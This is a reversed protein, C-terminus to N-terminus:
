FITVEAYGRSLASIDRAGFSSRQYSVASLQHSKIKLGADEIAVRGQDHDVLGRAERHMGPWARRITELAVEIRQAESVPFPRTQHMAEVAVGAAAQQERTVGLRHPTQAPEKGRRLHLLNVPGHDLAFRL